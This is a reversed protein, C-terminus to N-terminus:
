RMLHEPTGMLATQGRVRRDFVYVRSEGERPEEPFYAIPQDAGILNRIQRCYEWPGYVHQERAVVYRAAQDGGAYIVDAFTYGTTRGYFQTWGTLDVVKDEPELKEELWEAAMRYGVSSGNIPGLLSDRHLWGLGVVALLWFIPGPRVRGVQGLWRGPLSLRGLLFDLGVGSASMLLFAPVAAHRPSCYGSTAHLRVLAAASAAVVIGALMMGRRRERVERSVAFGVASLALVPITAADRLAEFTAKVGEAYTEIVPEPGDLPRGREVAGAGSNPATGMLRAIAPKTGLGGKYVVYPAAVLAPLLVLVGLAAWWRPWNLRTTRVLPTLLLALSLAAPLLLGEPRTSYALASFGITPALWGTRGERLFRLATWLGATWFLLFTSESLADAFLNPVMPGVYTLAVAMWATRAGFLEVSVLYLPLVLLSGCLVTVLQAAAVWDAPGDGGLVRHAAAIALPYVPHDISRFLGDVVSGADILQAQHIYRLGDAYVVTLRSSKWGLLGAALGMLLVVTLGHAIRSM